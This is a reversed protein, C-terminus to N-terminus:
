VVVRLRLYQWGRVLIYCCVTLAIGIYVTMQAWYLVRFQLFVLYEFESKWPCSFPFTILGAINARSQFTSLVTFSPWGDNPFRIAMWVLIKWAGIWRTQSWHNLFTLCSFNYLYISKTIPEVEVWGCWWLKGNESSIATIAAEAKTSLALWKDCLLCFTGARFLGSVWTPVVKIKWSLSIESPRQKLRNDM